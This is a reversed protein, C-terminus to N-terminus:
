KQSKANDKGSEYAANDEEMRDVTEDNYIVRDFGRITHPPNHKGDAEDKEGDNHHDRLEDSRRSM